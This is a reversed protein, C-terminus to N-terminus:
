SNLGLMHYISWIRPLLQIIIQFCFTWFTLIKYTFFALFFQLENTFITNLLCVNNYIWKNSNLYMFFTFFLIQLFSFLQYSNKTKEERINTLVVENIIIDDNFKWSKYNKKQIKLKSHSSFVIHLILKSGPDVYIHKFCFLSM